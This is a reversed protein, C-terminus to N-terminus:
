TQFNMTWKQLSFHFNFNNSTVPLKKVGGKIYMYQCCCCDSILNESVAIKVWKNYSVNLFQKKPRRKTYEVLTSTKGTGLGLWIFIMVEMVHIIHSWSQKKLRVVHIIITTIATTITTTITTTTTIIIIIIIMITDIVFNEVM